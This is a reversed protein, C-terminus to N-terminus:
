WMFASMTLWEPCICWCFLLLIDGPTLAWSSCSQFHYADRQQCFPHLVVQLSPTSSIAWLLTGVQKYAISNICIHTSFMHVRLGFVWCMHNFPWSHYQSSNLCVFGNPDTYFYIKRLCISCLDTCDSRYKVEICNCYNSLLLGYGHHLLLCFCIM